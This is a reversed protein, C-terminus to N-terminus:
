HRTMLEETEHIVIGSLELITHQCRTGSKDHFLWDVRVAPNDVISINIWFPYFGKVGHKIVVMQQSKGVTLSDIKAVVDVEDKLCMLHPISRWGSDTSKTHDKQRVFVDIDSSDRLCPKLLLLLLHLGM